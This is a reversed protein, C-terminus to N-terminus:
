SSTEQNSSPLGAPPNAAAQAAKEKTRKLDRSVSIYQQVAFAVVLLDASSFEIIGLWNSM